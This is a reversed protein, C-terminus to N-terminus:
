RSKVKTLSSGTDHRLGCLLRLRELTKAEIQQIRARTLGLDAGIDVHTRGALRQEIVFQWTEPLRRLATAVADLRARVDHDHELDVKPAAVADM